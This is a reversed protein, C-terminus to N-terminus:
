KPDGTALPNAFFRQEGAGGPVTAIDFVPVDFDFSGPVSASRITVTPNFWSSEPPRV